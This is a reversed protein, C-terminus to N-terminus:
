AVAEVHAPAPTLAVEMAGVLAVYPRPDTPSIHSMIDLVLTDDTDDLYRGVTPFLEADERLGHLEFLRVFGEASRVYADLALPRDREDDRQMRRWAVDLCAFYARAQDHHDFMWTATSADMGRAVALPVIAEEARLHHADVFNTTLYVLTGMASRLDAPLPDAEPLARIWTCIRNVCDFIREGLLHEQELVEEFSRGGLVADIPEAESM